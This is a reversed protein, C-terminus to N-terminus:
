KMSGSRDIAFSLNLPKCAIVEDSQEEHATLEVMLYLVAEQGAAIYKRNFTATLELSPM